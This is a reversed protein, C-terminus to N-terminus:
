DDKTFSPRYIEGNQVTTIAKLLEKRSPDSHIYGDIGSEFLPNVLLPTRYIHLAIIKCSANASKLRNIIKRAADKYSILDVLYIAEKENALDENIEEQRIININECASIDDGILSKIVRARQITESLIYIEKTISHM